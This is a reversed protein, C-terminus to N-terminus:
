AISVSVSTYYEFIILLLLVQSDIHWYMNFVSGGPGFGLNLAKMSRILSSISEPITNFLWINCSSRAVEARVFDLLMTAELSYELSSGLYSLKRARVFCDSSNFPRDTCIQCLQCGTSSKNASVSSVLAGFNWNHIFPASDIFTGGDLVLPLCDTLVRTM